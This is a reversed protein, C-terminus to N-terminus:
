LIDCIGNRSYRRYHSALEDNSQESWPSVPFCWLYWSLRTGCVDEFNRCIGRDYVIGTLMENEVEWNTVGMMANWISMFGYYGTLGAFNLGLLSFSTFILGRIPNKPNVIFGFAYYGCIITYLSLYIFGYINFLIFFKLNRKGIWSSTYCCEHDPRLVFRRASHSFISRPPNPHEQLWLLQEHTTVIGSISDTFNSPIEGLSIMFQYFPFYGPGEIIARFYSYVFFLFPLILCFSLKWPHEYSPVVFVLLVTLTSFSLLSVICPAVLDIKWSGLFYSDLVAVYSVPLCHCIKKSEFSTKEPLKM